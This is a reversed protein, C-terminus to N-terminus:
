NVKQKLLDVETKLHDIKADPDKVESTFKSVIKEIIQALLLVILKGEEYLDAENIDEETSARIKPGM